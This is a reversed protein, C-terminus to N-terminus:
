VTAASKCSFPARSGPADAGPHGLGGAEVEDPGLDIERADIWVPKGDRWVVMPLGLRRHEMVADRAAANMAEDVLV